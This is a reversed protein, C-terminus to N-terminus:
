EHPEEQCVECSCDTIYEGNGLSKFQFGCSECFGFDLEYNGFRNRCKVCIMETALHFGDKLGDEYTKSM